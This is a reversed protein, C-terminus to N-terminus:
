DLVPVDVGEVFRQGICWTLAGVFGRFSRANGRVLRVSLERKIWTLYVDREFGGSAAADKAWDRLLSIASHGLRGYTEVAFPVFNYGRTGGSAHDRRKNEEAVRAAAGPEKSARSRLTRSAPHTIVVDINLVDDLTSVLVDGRKGYGDDGFHLGRLHREQPEISSGHGAATAGYQVSSQVHDHRLTCLGSLKDCTMAHHGDSGQYCCSCRYFKQAPPGPSVGLQFRLASTVTADDLEWQTKTPLVGMWATGVGGQLSHLRALNEQANVKMAPDALRGEYKQLLLARTNETVQMSVSRQLGALLGNDHAEQVSYAQVDGAEDGLFACVQAWAQELPQKAAGTFPCLNGAGNYLAQQTLSAAALFGARCTIGDAVTMHQLGIGGYRTPLHLQETDVDTSDRGILQLFAAQVTAETKLLSPQLQEYAVCRAFQCMRVQVAKRLLLLKDQASLELNQLTTVLEQVASATKEVHAAVFEPTGVPCGAVVLGEATHPMDLTSAVAAAVAAQLSFVMSKLPQVVLGVTSLNDRLFRYALAVEASQGQLVIDDLYAIVRVTPYNVQVLQLLPQITLAFFLPGCPDGQRVGSKSWLRRHEAGSVLLPSAESYM